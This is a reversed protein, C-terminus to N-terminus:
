IKDPSVIPNSYTLGCGDCEVIRWHMHRSLKRAAFDLQELEADEAYKVSFGAGPGCIPCHIYHDGQLETM